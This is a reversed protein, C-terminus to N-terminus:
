RGLLPEIGTALSDADQFRDFQGRIRGQRDLLFTVPRAAPLTATQSPDLAGHLISLGVVTFEQAGDYLAFCVLGDSSFRQALTNLALAQQDCASCGPTWVTFAVPRGRFDSLSRPTPEGPIQFSVDFPPGPQISRHCAIL